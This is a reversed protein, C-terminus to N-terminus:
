QLNPSTTTSLSNPEAAEHFAPLDYTPAARHTPRHEPRASHTVVDDDSTVPRWSESRAQDYSSLASRCGSSWALGMAMGESDGVWM